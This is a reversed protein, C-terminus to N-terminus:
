PEDGPTTSRSLNDLGLLARLDHLRAVAAEHAPGRGYLDDLWARSGGDLLPPAVVGETKARSTLSRGRRRAPRPIRVALEPRCGREVLEIVAHLDWSRDDALRKALDPPFGSEVLRERRWQSISTGTGSDTLKM